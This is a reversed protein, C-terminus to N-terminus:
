QVAMLGDILNFIFHDFLEKVVSGYRLRNCLEDEQLNGDRTSM